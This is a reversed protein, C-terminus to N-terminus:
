SGGSRIRSDTTPNPPQTPRRREPVLQERPGLWREYEQVEAEAPQVLRRLIEEDLTIGHRSAARKLVRLLPIPLDVEIEVSQSLDPVQM